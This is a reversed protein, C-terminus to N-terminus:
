GEVPEAEPVSAGDCAWPLMSVVLNALDDRVDRGDVDFDQGETVLLLRGDCVWAAAPYDYAYGAGPADADIATAGAQESLVGLVDADQSANFTEFATPEESVIVSGGGPHEVICSFGETDDGWEGGTSTVEADGGLLLEVGTRPVGDCIWPGEATTPVADTSPGTCAALLLAVVGVAGAGRVVGRSRASM